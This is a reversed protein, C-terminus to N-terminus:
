CAGSPRRPPTSCPTSRGPSRRSSAATSPRGWFLAASRRRSTGSPTAGVETVMVRLGQRVYESKLTEEERMTQSMALRLAFYGIHDSHNGLNEGYAATM